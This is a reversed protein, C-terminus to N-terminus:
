GGLFVPDSLASDVAEDAGIAQVYLTYSVAQTAATFYTEYSVTIKVTSSGGAARSLPKCYVVERYDSIGVNVWYTKAGTDATIDGGTFTGVQEVSYGTVKALDGFTTENSVVYLRALEVSYKESIGTITWEITGTKTGTGLSDQDAPSSLAISTDEHLCQINVSLPPNSQPDPKSIDIVDISFITELRNDSDYDIYRYEKFRPNATMTHEIDLFYDTGAYAVLFIMGLDEKNVGVSLATGVTATTGGLLDAKTITSLTKGYGHYFKYVDSTSAVATGMDLYNTESVLASVTGYFIQTEDPPNIKYQYVFLYYLIGGTLLIMALIGVVIIASVGKRDKFSHM